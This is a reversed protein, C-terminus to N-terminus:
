QPSRTVPASTTATVQVPPSVIPQQQEEQPGASTADDHLSILNTLAEATRPGINKAVIARSPTEIVQVDTSYLLNAANAITNVNAADITAGTSPIQPQQQRSSRATTSASSGTVGDDITPRLRKFVTSHGDNGAAGSTSTSERVGGTVQDLPRKLNRIIEFAVATPRIM